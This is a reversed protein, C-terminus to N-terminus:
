SQACLFPWSGVWASKGDLFLFSQKIPGCSNHLSWKQSWLLSPLISIFNMEFPFFLTLQILTAWSKTWNHARVFV